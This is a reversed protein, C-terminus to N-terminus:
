DRDSDHTQRGEEHHAHCDRHQVLLRVAKGVGNRVNSLEEQLERALRQERIIDRELQWNKMEWGRSAQSIKEIHDRLHGVEEQLQHNELRLREIIM